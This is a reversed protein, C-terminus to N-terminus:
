LHVEGKQKMYRVKIIHVENWQKADDDGVGSRGRGRLIGAADGVVGSRSISVFISSGAGFLAVLAVLEVAVGKGGGQM